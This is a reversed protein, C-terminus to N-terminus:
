ESVKVELLNELYRKLDNLEGQYRKVIELHQQAGEDHGHQLMQETKGLRNLVPTVYEDHIAQLTRRFMADLDVRSTYFYKRNNQRRLKQVLGLRTLEDLAGSVAPVSYGIYESIQDQTMANASLILAGFVRGYVEGMGRARFLAEFTGLLNERDEILQYSNNMM